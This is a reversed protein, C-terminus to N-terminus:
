KARGKGKSKAASKALAAALTRGKATLRYKQLRSNPKDPITWELVGDDMLVRLVFRKFKTRDSRGVKDLLEKTSRPVDCFSLVREQISGETGCCVSHRSQTGRSPASQTGVPHRDSGSRPSAEQARKKSGSRQDLVVLGQSAGEVLGKVRNGIGARWIITKFFGTTPDFEPRALGYEVCKDLIEGTGSGSKEVYSTWSMARAILSNRPISDHTRYLDDVTIGRPLPGPNIIELRDRFLMVQVCANSTYDRHCVANVIAERIADRPFESRTPAAASEGDHAGVAFDVRSMVFDVAQDVLEFVTGHYTHLSPIPKVVRTGYFQICRIEWAPNFTEPNKAFLPIAGNAIKKSRKDMLGIRVLVDTASIRKPFTVKGADIVLRVYNAFRSEDLDKMTVGRSFSEDFPSNSVQDLEKLYSVLAKYVGARLEDFDSFANRCLEADVKGRVFADERKDRRTVNKVFALRTKHLETARDYERETPSVGDEGRSGYKSGFLGLYVDCAAVEELFVSKATRNKAPQEEFIFVDFFDGLLADERIYKALSKREAAFERQVSSIFIRYKM